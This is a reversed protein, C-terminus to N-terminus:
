SLYFISIALKLFGKANEDNELLSKKLTNVDCNWFVPDQTKILREDFFPVTGEFKFSSWGKKAKVKVKLPGVNLNYMILSFVDKEVKPAILLSTGGSIELVTEPWVSNNWDDSIPYVRLFENSYNEEIRYEHKKILHHGLNNTVTGCGLICSVYMPTSCNACHDEYKSLPFFHKCALNKCRAFCKNLIIALEYNVRLTSAFSVDSAYRSCTSCPDGMNGCRTCLPHGLECILSGEGLLKSCGMCVLYQIHNQFVEM